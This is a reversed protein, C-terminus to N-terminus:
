MKLMANTGPDAPPPVIANTLKIKRVFNEELRYIFPFQNTIGGDFPIGCDFLNTAQTTPVAVTDVREGVRTYPSHLLYVQQYEIGPRFYIKMSPALAMYNGSSILRPQGNSYHSMKIAVLISLTEGPGILSSPYPLKEVMYYGQAGPHSVEVSLPYVKTVTGRVRFKEGAKSFDFLNTNVIRLCPETEGVVHIAAHACTGTVLALYLCFVKM